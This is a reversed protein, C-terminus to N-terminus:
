EGFVKCVIGIMIKKTRVMQVPESPLGMDLQAPTNCASQYCIRINQMEKLPISCSAHLDMLCDKTFQTNHREIVSMEQPEM